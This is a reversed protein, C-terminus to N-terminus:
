DYGEGAFQTIFDNNFYYGSNADLTGPLYETNM